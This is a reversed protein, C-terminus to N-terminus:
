GRFRYNLLLDNTRPWPSIRSVRNKIRSYISLKKINLNLSDLGAASFLRHFPHGDFNMYRAANSIGTARVALHVAVNALCNSATHLIGDLLLPRSTQPDPFHKSSVIRRITECAEDLVDNYENSNM